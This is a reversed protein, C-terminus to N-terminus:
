NPHLTARIEQALATNIGPVQCLEEISAQALAHKGGFHRLLAQRRKPGIGPIGELESTFRNKSRKARHGTLAFRHAEDRLYQILHLAPSHEALPIEQNNTALFVKEPANKTSSGEAISLLLIQQLGLESLLQKAINLQGKGGDILLLDPLQSDADVKAFRRTLAQQMAAYDDGPTIGQINFRRYDQKRPGQRDFVVGAAVTAEGQSHSIDFCELRQLPQKVDLLQELDSFRQALLKDANSHSVLQQQANTVALEIWSARHSRVKHALRFQRCFRETLAAALVESDTLEHSLLIEPAPPLSTRTLYFQAIFASLTDSPSADLPNKFNFHRTSILRGQRILLLSISCNGHQSALGFIDAEGLGTDVNQQAQLQRLQQIQDRYHSALEFKLETAAAEMKSALMDTVQNSKGELLLQAHHLDQAYDAASIEKTCPASCRKIQYQLCPRSRNSFTADDCQRLRFVKYLLQLTDRVSSASPYPGFWQGAGRQHRARRVSLAPWEHASFHIFPYSKDDRLLINFPPKLAKILNQELLLAETETRTVTVEITAIRSVLAQTKLPLGTNRFYSALRNKLNRAKGVYLIKGDAGFMQYIGAASTTSALFEKAAFSSPTAANSVSSHATSNASNTPSM